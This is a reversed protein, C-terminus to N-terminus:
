KMENLFTKAFSAAEQLDKDNPRGRHLMAFSGRCHYEKESMHIGKSEVLKKVQKYTSEILAASSFNVVSGINKDFSSIFDKVEGAVGAAYVSSGLFLIDTDKDVKKTIPFAKVGIADAIANALKKTNGSKSYYRVAIKM